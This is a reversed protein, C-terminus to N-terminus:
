TRRRIKVRFDGGPVLAGSGAFAKAFGPFADTEKKDADVFGKVDFDFKMLVMALAGIAEQKAFVRGPCITKGGGFPFFKGNTGSLSFVERGTVPDKSLFREAYFDECPARESWAKDDHHGLWSPAFINDGAHMTVTRKGDEDMPLTIDETLNRTILVDTYLRLTETWISQLLPSSILAAIDLSGDESRSKDIEALSRPLLTPDGMPNLIHFLMWGTAPIANSSLGFTIGLDLAAASRTNLKRNKYDIQRARNLRSGFLPEWAPGEPDVPKGGSNEHMLNSWKELNDFIRTRREYADPIMFRPFDFFFKLFVNDFGFFDECYGPYMQLLSDGMLATTSATFMRNRLWQYLGVENRSTIDEADADLTENFVKTFHATLENVRENKLLYQSNMEYEFHKGAEANHIQDLSMLFVKSYLDREFGDRAPSRAKLLAQIAPPSYLIHTKRGGLILTCIGTSRPHWSFLSAWYQGPYPALFSLSNGLWPLTYPVQPPEINKKGGLPTDLSQKLTRYYAWTTYLRVASLLVAVFAFPLAAYM